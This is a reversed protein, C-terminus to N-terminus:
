SPRQPGSVAIPEVPQTRAPQRSVVSWRLPAVVQAWFTQPFCPMDTLGTDVPPERDAPVIRTGFVLDWFLVTQGYNASAEDLRRSHHWRHVEAMSLIRNLPGLRVDVNSHQFISHTSQFVLVLAILEESAGLALLPGLAVLPYVVTELPHDRASNLWYLRPVSHHIAHIRWLLGGQHQIRHLVYVGLESLVLGLPLQVLLPWSSPWLAPRALQLISLNVALQGLGLIPGSTVFYALDTKVDGHSRSWEPRYPLTRELVIVLIIAPVQLAVLTPTLPWGLRIALLLAGTAGIMVLPYALVRVPLPSM